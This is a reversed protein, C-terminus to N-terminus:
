IRPCLQSITRTCSPLTLTGQNDENVKEKRTPRVVHHCTLAYIKECWGLRPDDDALEAGDVSLRVYGGLTGYAWRLGEVALSDGPTAPAPAPAPASGGNLLSVVSGQWLEIEIQRALEPDHAALLARLRAEVPLWRDPDLSGTVLIVPPNKGKDACYGRRILGVAYLTEHESLCEVVEARGREFMNREHLCENNTIAGTYRCPLDDIAMTSYFSSSM